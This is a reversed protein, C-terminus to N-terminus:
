HRQPCTGSSAVAGIPWANRGQELAGGFIDVFNQAPRLGAVKRYLLRNRLRQKYGSSLQDFSRRTTARSICCGAFQLTEKPNIVVRM